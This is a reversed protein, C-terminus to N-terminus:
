IYKFYVPEHIKFFHVSEENILSKNVSCENELLNVM